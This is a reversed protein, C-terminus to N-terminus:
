SAARKNPFVLFIRSPRLVLWVLGRVCLMFHFFMWSPAPSFVLELYFARTIISCASFLTVIEMSRNTANSRDRIWLCQFRRWRNAVIIGCYTQAANRLRRSANRLVGLASVPWKRNGSEALSMEPCLSVALRRAFKTCACRSNLFFRLLSSARPSPM